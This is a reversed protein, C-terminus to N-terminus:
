TYRWIVVYIFIRLGHSFSVIPIDDNGIKESIVGQQLYLQRQTHVSEFAIWAHKYLTHMTFQLQLLLEFILTLADDSELRVHQWRRRPCLPSVWSAKLHALMQPDARSESYSRRIRLYHHDAGADGAERRGVVQDGGLADLADDDDLPPFPDPPFHM